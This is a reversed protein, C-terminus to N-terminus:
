SPKHSRKPRGTGTPTIIPLEIEDEATKAPAAEKQFEKSLEIFIKKRNDEGIVQLSHSAIDMQRKIYDNQLSTKDFEIELEKVDHKIGKFADISRKLGVPLNAVAPIVSAVAVVGGVALSGALLGATYAPVLIPSTVIAAGIMTGISGVTGAVGMSTAAYAMAASGAMWWAGLSAVIGIGDAVYAYHSKSAHHTARATNRLIISAPFTVAAMPGTMMKKSGNEIKRMAWQFAKRPAKHMIKEYGDYLGKLNIPIYIERRGDLNVKNTAPKQESM